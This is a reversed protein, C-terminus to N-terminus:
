RAPLSGAEDVHLWFFDQTGLTLTLRGDESV